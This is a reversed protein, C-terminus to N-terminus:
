LTCGEIGMEQAKLGHRELLGSIGRHELEELSVSIGRKDFARRYLEFNIIKAVDISALGGGVVISRDPVVYSHGDYGADDYHNFWHVFPNQYAFGKGLFSDVGPIGLPRDRWAGHALVVANHGWDQLLSPLSFDKGLKTCPVYLVGPVTLNVNIREYEKQRLKVHWRPLGDEIKGYPR